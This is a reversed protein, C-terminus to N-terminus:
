SGPQENQSHHNLIFAVVEAIRESGLVPGWTPMGKEAVGKTVLDLIQTPESGHIWEKDLLNAGIGGKLDAGHCAVCNSTFIKQGEAVVAQDQSMKWLQENTLEVGSGIARKAMEAMAAAVREDAPVMHGTWEYYGWYFVAFVIAGYLTFLWWNPLRKDYEQIGDYVHPRLDDDSGPSQM